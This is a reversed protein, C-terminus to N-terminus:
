KSQRGGARRAHKWARIAGKRVPLQPLDEQHEEARRTGAEKSIRLVDRLVPSAIQLLTSLVRLQRKPGEGSDGQILLVLDSLEDPITCDDRQYHHEHCEMRSKCLSRARHPQQM